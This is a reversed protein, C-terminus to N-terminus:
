EEVPQWIYAEGQKHEKLKIKEGAYIKPLYKFIQYLFTDYYNGEGDKLIIRTQSKTNCFNYSSSVM